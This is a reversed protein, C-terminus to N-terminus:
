RVERWRCRRLGEPTRPRASMNEVLAARSTQDHGAVPASKVPMRSPTALKPYRGSPLLPISSTIAVVAPTERSQRFEGWFSIM